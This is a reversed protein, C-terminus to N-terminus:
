LTQEAEIPFGAIAGMISLPIALNQTAVTSGHGGCLDGLAVGFLTGL